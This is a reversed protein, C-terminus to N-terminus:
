RLFVPTFKFLMSSFGFAASFALSLWFGDQFNIAEEFVADWTVLSFMGLSFTVLSLRLAEFANNRRYAVQATQSEKGPARRM